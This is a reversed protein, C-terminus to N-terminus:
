RERMISRIDKLQDYINLLLIIIELYIRLFIIGILAGIPVVIITGLLTLVGTSGVAFIAAM